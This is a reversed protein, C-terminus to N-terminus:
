SSFAPSLTASARLLDQSSNELARIRRVEVKYERHAVVCRVLDTREPRTLRHCRM